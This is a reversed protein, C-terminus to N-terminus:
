LRTLAPWSSGVWQRTCHTATHQMTNCHTVTRQLINCHCSFNVIPWDCASPKRGTWGGEAGGGGLFCMIYVCVCVWMWVWVWVWVFCMRNPWRLGVAEQGSVKTVADIIEQDKSKYPVGSFHVQDFTVCMLVHTSHSMPTHLTIWPFDSPPVQHPRPPLFSSYMSLLLILFSPTSFSHRMQLIFCVPCCSFSLVNSNFPLGCLYIQHSCTHTRTHKHMHAHPHLLFLLFSFSLSHTHAHTHIRNHQHIHTRKISNQLYVYICTYHVYTCIHKYIYIYIYSVSLVFPHTHTHTRARTNSQIKRHTHTQCLWVPIYPYVYLTCVHM